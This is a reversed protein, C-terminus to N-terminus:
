SKAVKNVHKANEGALVEAVVSADSIADGRSYDGFPQKVVLVFQQDSAAATSAASSNSDAM